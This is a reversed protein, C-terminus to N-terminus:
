ELNNSDNNTATGKRVAEIEQYLERNFKEFWFKILIFLWICEILLLIFITLYWMNNYYDSFPSKTLINSYINKEFIEQKQNLIDTKWTWFNSEIIWYNTDNGKFLEIKDFYDYNNLFNNYIKNRMNEDGNKVFWTWDLITHLNSIYAIKPLNFYDVKQFLFAWLWFITIVLLIIIKKWKTTNLWFWLEKKIEIIDTNELTKNNIIKAQLNTIKEIYLKIEPIEKNLSIEKKYLNELKQEDKEKKILSLVEILSKEKWKLKTENVSILFTFKNLLDTRLLWLNRM